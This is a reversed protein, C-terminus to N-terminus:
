APHHSVLLTREPGGGEQGRQRAIEAFFEDVPMREQGCGAAIDAALEESISRRQMLSAHREGEDAADSGQASM